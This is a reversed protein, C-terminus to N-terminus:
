GERAGAQLPGHAEHEGRALARRALACAKDGERPTSADFTVVGGSQAGRMMTVYVMKELV